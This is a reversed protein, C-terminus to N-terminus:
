LQIVYMMKSEAAENLRHERKGRTEWNVPFSRALSEATTKVETLRRPIVSVSSKREETGEACFSTRSPFDEARILSTVKNM